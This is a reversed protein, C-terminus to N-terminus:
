AAKRHAARKRAWYIEKMRSRAKERECDICSHHRGDRSRHPRRDVYFERDTKWCGCTSCSKM